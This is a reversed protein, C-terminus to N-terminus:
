YAAILFCIVWGSLGALTLWTLVVGISRTMPPGNEKPHYLGWIHLVRAIVFASGIACLATRNAGSSELLGLLIIVIPAHEALNGHSRMANTLRRDGADGHPVMLRFRQRVTDIATILLLVACAAAVAATIPLTM